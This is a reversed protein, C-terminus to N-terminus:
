GQVDLLIYGSVLLSRVTSFDGPVMSCSASFIYMKGPDGNRSITLVFPGEHSGVMCWNVLEDCVSTAVEFGVDNAIREVRENNFVRLKNGDAVDIWEMDKLSYTSYYETIAAEVSEKNMAETFGLSDELGLAVYSIRVTDLVPAMFSLSPASNIKSPYNALYSLQSHMDYITSYPAEYLKDADWNGHEDLINHTQATSLFRDMQSNFGLTAGSLPGYNFLFTLGATLVPVALWKADRRLSFYVIILVSLISYYVAITRNMTLGYADIREVIAMWQLGLIPLSLRLLWTALNRMKGTSWSLASALVLATSYGSVLPWVVGKPFEGEFIIKFMYAWLIILYAVLLPWVVYVLLRRLLEPITYKEADDTSFRALFVITQFPFFILGAAYGFYKNIEVEFLLKVSEIIIATGFYLVVSLVASTVFATFLRANYNWFNQDTKNAGVYLVFSVLAHLIVAVAAMGVMHIEQIDPGLMPRAALLLLGLMAGNYLVRILIQPIGFSWRKALLEAAVFGALGLLAVMLRYQPIDFDPNYTVRIILYALYLASVLAMPFTKIVELSLKALHVPNVWKLVQQLKM